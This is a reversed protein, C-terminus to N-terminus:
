VSVIELECHAITQRKWTYTLDIYKGDAIVYPYSYEGPATEFDYRESWTKGNDESIVASLPTREGWNTSIPNFVLVLAHDPMRAVSIGSNNNPLETQYAECWTEGGDESDSRYIYGRSSRMLCHFTREGSQWIAPQIIGDAGQRVQLESLHTFPIPHMTWTKGKDNSIEICCDWTTSSEHSSGALWRGDDAVLIACKTVIRSTHDGLVAERSETWTEGFDYSESVMTYWERCNHGVKYYLIVRDGDQHLIPNWHPLGYIYKIRRPEQWDGDIRRSLWIGVDQSGEKTGGFYAVLLDGKENKLCTSAHCEGFLHSSENWVHEKKLLVIRKMEKKIPDLKVSLKMQEELFFLIQRPM